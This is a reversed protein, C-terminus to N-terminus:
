HDATHAPRRADYKDFLMGLLVSDTTQAEMSAVVSDVDERFFSCHLFILTSIANAGDMDKLAADLVANMQAQAIISMFVFMMIGRVCVDMLSYRLIRCTSM